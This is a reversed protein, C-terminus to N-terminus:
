KTAHDYIFSAGEVASLKTSKLNFGNFTRNASVGLSTPARALRDDTHGNCIGPQLKVHMNKKAIQMRM